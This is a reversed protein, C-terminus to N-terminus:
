KRMRKVLGDNERKLLAKEVLFKDWQQALERM